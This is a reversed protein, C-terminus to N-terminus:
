QSAGADPSPQAGRLKGAAIAQQVAEDDTAGYEVIGPADLNECLWKGTVADFSLTLHWGDVTTPTPPVAIAEREIM